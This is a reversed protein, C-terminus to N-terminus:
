MVSITDITLKLGHSRYLVPVYVLLRCCSDNGQAIERTARILYLKIPDNEVKAGVDANAKEGTKRYMWADDLDDNSIAARPTVDDESAVETEADEGESLDRHTTLDLCHM